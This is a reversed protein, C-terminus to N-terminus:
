RIGAVDCFGIRGPLRMSDPIGQSIRLHHRPVDVVDIGVPCCGPCAIDLFGVGDFLNEASISGFNRETGGFGHAPM